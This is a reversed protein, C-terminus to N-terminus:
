FWMEEPNLVAEIPMEQEEHEGAQATVLGAYGNGAEGFTLKFELEPHLESTRILWPVPPSWATDFKYIVTGDAQQAGNTEVSLEVDADESGIAVFPASFSADWKTGWHQLAWGYWGGDFISGPGFTPDDPEPDDPMPVDAHFSLPQEDTRIHDAYAKVTEPEGRVTLVNHCWNPM